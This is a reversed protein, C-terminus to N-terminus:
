LATEVLVPSSNLVATKLQEEIWAQYRQELLQQRVADTFQAPIHQELRVIINWEDLRQPPCLQGPRCNSLIKVLGPHLKASPVPGVLGGTQAENGESYQSALKAFTEEGEQIRFFLERILEPSSLRMLSYVYQDIQSKYKLFDSELVSNWSLFKFKELKFQRLAQQELQEISMRHYGLWLEQQDANMLQSQEYFRKLAANEEEATLKIDAVTRDIVINKLLTPLLQYQTVSELINVEFCASHGIQIQLTM